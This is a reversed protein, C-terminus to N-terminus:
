VCKKFSLRKPKLCQKERNDNRAEVRAKRRKQKLIWCYSEWTQGVSALMAREFATLNSGDIAICHSPPSNFGNTEPVDHNFGDEMRKSCTKQKKNKTEPVDHNFGDEMRKSCTKKVNHNLNLGDMRSALDDEMSRSNM